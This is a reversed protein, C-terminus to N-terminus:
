EGPAPYTGGMPGGAMPGQAVRRGMAGGRPAAVPRQSPVTARRPTLYLLTVMMLVWTLESQELLFKETMSYILAYIMLLMYFLGAMDDSGILRAYARKFGTGFVLLFLGVGVFGLELWVDLYGNHGNGIEGWIRAYVYSAGEPTWFARYGAGLMSHDMGAVIAYTWITTRGTFTLDRGVAELGVVLFQTVAMIMGFGLILLSGVRLSMPLRAGRLFRLLQITLLLAIATIWATRSQSMALLFACLALGAWPFWRKKGGPEILMLAFIVVGLAMMRGLRNKHGFSGLWSGGLPPGQHITSTPYLIVLVLSLAAGLMLAWGVLELLERPTFRLVLYYAFTTSLVLAFARRFTADPYYSWLASFMCFGTLALLAWNGTLLKPLRAREALIYLLGISYMSLTAAQFKINGSDVESAFDRNMEIGSRFAFLYPILAGALVMLALICFVRELNRLLYFQLNTM